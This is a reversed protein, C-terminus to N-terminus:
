GSLGAAELAEAHSRFAQERIPQGESITVLYALESAFEAGSGLGTGRMRALVLMRDGLDIVEEAGQEFEGLQEIWTLQYRLREERGRYVPEFGLGVMEPPTITEFDSPDSPIIAFVADWDQRNAAELMREWQRRVLVRRIWSSPRLRMVVRMLAQVIGPFRVYLREDWRRRRTERLSLRQRVIEGDGERM